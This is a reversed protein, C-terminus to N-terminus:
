KIIIEITKNRSFLLINNKYIEYKLLPAADNLIILDVEKKCIETLDM